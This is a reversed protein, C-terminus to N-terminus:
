ARTWCSAASSRGYTESQHTSLTTTRLRRTLPKLGYGLPLRRESSATVRTGADSGRLRHGIEDAAQERQNRHRQADRRQGKRQYMEHGAVGYHRHKALCGRRRIDRAHAVLQPEVAREKRLVRAEQPSNRVAIQAFRDRR